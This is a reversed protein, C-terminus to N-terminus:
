LDSHRQPCCVPVGGFRLKLYGPVSPTSRISSFPIIIIGLLLMAPIAGIWYGHKALPGYQYASATWGMLELSGLTAAVFSLGAIWMTRDRGAMFFDDGTKTFRLLYYERGSAIAFSSIVIFSDVWGLSMLISPSAGKLPILPPKINWFM